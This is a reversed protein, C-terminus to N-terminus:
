RLFFGQEPCGESEPLSEYVANPDFSFKLPYVIESKRKFQISIGIGRLQDNTSAQSLDLNMAKANAKALWAYADVGGFVGYGDYASEEIAPQGNPQLLYVKKVPKVPQHKNAISENTDATLWSFFGM